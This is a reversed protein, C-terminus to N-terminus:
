DQHLHVDGRPRRAARRQRDRQKWSHNAVAVLGASLYLLTVMKLDSACKEGGEEPLIFDANAKHVHEFCGVEQDMCLAWRGWPGSNLALSDWMRFWGAAPKLVIRSIMNLLKSSLSVDDMVLSGFVGRCQSNDGFFGGIIGWTVVVLWITSFLVVVELTRGRLDIGVSKKVSNGIGGGITAMIFFSTVVVGLGLDYLLPDRVIGPFASLTAVGYVVMSWWLRSRKYCVHKHVIHWSVNQCQRSCYYSRLCRVCKWRARRRCLSCAWRRRSVKKKKLLRRATCYLSVVPSMLVPALPRLWRRQVVATGVRWWFHPQRLAAVVHPPMAELWDEAETAPANAPRTPPPLSYPKGCTECLLGRNAGRHAVRWRWQEVCLYHVFAMSGACECPALMPNKLAQDNPHYTPHPLLPGKVLAGTPPESEEPERDYNDAQDEDDVYLGTSTQRPNQDDGENEMAPSPLEDDADEHIGERCIRCFVSETPLPAAVVPPNLGDDYEDMLQMGSSSHFVLGTRLCKLSFTSEAPESSRASANEQPEDDRTPDDNDVSDNAARIEEGVSGTGAASTPIGPIDQIELSSGTTLQATLSPTLKACSGLDVYGAFGGKSGPWRLRLWHRNFAICFDDVIVVESHRLRRIPPKHVTELNTRAPTAAFSSHGGGPETTGSPGGGSGHQASPPEGEGAHHVISSDVDNMEFPAEYVHVGYKWPETTNAGPNCLYLPM